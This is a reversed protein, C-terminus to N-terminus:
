VLTEIGIEEDEEYEAQEEAHKEEEDATKFQKIKIKNLNDKCYVIM